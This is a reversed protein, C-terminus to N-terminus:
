YLQMYRRGQLDQTGRPSEDPAPLIAADSDRAASLCVCSKAQAELWCRQQTSGYRNLKLHKLASHSLRSRSHTSPSGEEEMVEFVFM